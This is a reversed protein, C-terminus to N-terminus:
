RRCGLRLRQAEFALREVGGQDLGDTILAGTSDSSLVAAAGLAQQVQLCDALRTGGSWDAVGNRSVAAVGSRSRAAEAPPQDGDAAHRLCLKLRAHTVGSSRTASGHALHFLMRSYRSMSGSIDALLILRWASAPSRSACFFPMAEHPGPCAALRALRGPRRRPAETAARRGADEFIPRLRALVRKAQAWGRGNM